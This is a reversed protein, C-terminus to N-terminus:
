LLFRRVASIPRPRERIGPTRDLEGPGFKIMDTSEGFSHVGRREAIQTAAPSDTHQTLIDAGQDVLAKAGDTFM